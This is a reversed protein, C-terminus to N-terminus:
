GNDEEKFSKSHKIIYVSILAVIIFMVISIVMGMNYQGQKLTLSYIWSSLIDTDGAYRYNSNVPDGGTLMFVIGYNNLTTAFTMIILPATSYLVLPLTISRFKRFPSAGDLDAAEYIDMPLNSMVGSMILMDAGVSLWLNVGILIARAIFSNAFWDVSVGGITQLLQNIPGVKNFMVRMTLISIFGPIVMPFILITRFIKMFRIKKSDLFIAFILGMFYALFTSLAAFIFTWILVGFFTNKWVSLKILNIFNKFGVWNLLVQPTLHNPSSYDTFAILFSGIVPVLTVFIIVAFVPALMFVPFRNDIVWAPSKKKYGYNEIGKAVKGADFINAVYSLIVLTLIVVSIIGDILMFTSNDGVAIDNVYHLPEIGLTILGWISNIFYPIGFILVIIEECCLIVGKIFQRNYIQGLGMFIASLITAKRHNEM